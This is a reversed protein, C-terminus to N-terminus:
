PKTLGSVPSRGDSGASGGGVSGGDDSGEGVAGEGVSGGEEEPRERIERRVGAGMGSAKAAAARRLGVEGIRTELLGREEEGISAEKSKFRLVM